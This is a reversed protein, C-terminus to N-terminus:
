TVARAAFAPALERRILTMADQVRTAWGAHRVHELAAEGMAHRLVEDGAMEVLAAGLSQVLEAEDCSSTSVVRATGPGVLTAPGGRDICIVPLGYSQAELVVNGSSDHLSPFLVCHSGAYLAFLEAQPMHERWQLRQPGLGLKGALTHLTDRCPGSGVVTFHVDAGSALAHAVARLALHVGKWGLLRGAFLVRLPEGPARRPASRGAAADIGIEPFVLAQARWPAPLADRTDATKTLILDARRLALWLFPDWRAIGNAASRLLEKLKERRDLSRKLGWPVDEGGGVPGFVFPVGLYGLFCPHRFVGYTLHMALDFPQQRQLQRAKVLLGFQWALYMLHATRANLPMRRLWGPRWYEVRLRPLPQAALVPEVKAARSPDTIVTVEHERALEVAWRWGVGPESGTNPAFAFASLLIRM